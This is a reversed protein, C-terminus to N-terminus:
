EDIATFESHEEAEKTGKGESESLPAFCGWDMSQGVGLDEDSGGGGSSESGRGKSERAGVGDVSDGNSAKSDEKRETAPEKRAVEKGAQKKSTRKTGNEGGKAGDKAGDKACTYSTGQPRDLPSSALSRRALPSTMTSPPHLPLTLTPARTLRPRSSSSSEGAAPEPLSPEPPAAAAAVPAPAVPAKVPSTLHKPPPPIAPPQGLAARAAKKTPTESAADMAAAADEVPAKVEGGVASPAEVDGDAFAGGDAEAGNGTHLAKFLFHADDLGLGAGALLEEDVAAGDLLEAVSDVGLRRVLADVAAGDGLWGCRHLLYAVVPARAEAAAAVAAAHRELLSAPPTRGPSQLPPQPSSPSSASSTHAIIIRRNPSLPAELHRSYKRTNSTSPVSTV